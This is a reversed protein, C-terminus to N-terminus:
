RSTVQVGDKVRDDPHLVVHAREELGGTVQVHNGSRKGLQVERLKAVGFDNVFLAWGEGHRFVSSAPVKLVDDSQWIVIHAEIRYGDGLSAWVKKPADLDILVNVRQEEVGLSSLRTFASPEVLRVRAKMQDGGWRDVTVSAGVTIHVADSTLVDVVLELAAPDGVELLPTGPQVVGESEHLVKLVRGAVPATVELQERESAPATVQGLAARAMKLENAVVRAGFKASDLEAKATRESLLVKDLERRPLAGDDVLSKTRQVEKKAFELAM